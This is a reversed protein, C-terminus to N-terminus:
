PRSRGNRILGTTVASLPLYPQPRRPDTRTTGFAKRSLARHCMLSLAREAQVRSPEALASGTGPWRRALAVNCPAGVLAFWQPRRASQDRM